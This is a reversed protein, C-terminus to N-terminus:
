KSLSELVNRTKPGVYGVAPTLNFLLQLKKVGARTKSGFYGKKEPFDEM